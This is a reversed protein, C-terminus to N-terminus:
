SHKYWWTLPCWWKLPSFHQGPVKQPMMLGQKYIVYDKQRKYLPVVYYGKKLVFDLTQLNLHYLKLDNIKSIKELLQDILLSHIGAYNFSGQTTAALSSWYKHLEESPESSANWQNIIIDYDFAMRRKEYEAADVRRIHALIGLKELNNKYFLALKEHLLSTILINIEFQKKTKQHILKGGEVSFGSLKLLDFSKQLDTRYSLSFEELSKHDYGLTKLYTKVERGNHRPDFAYPTSEFYSEIRNLHEGFYTRNLSEFDFAFTLAKRVNLDNLYPHRTNLVFGFMGQPQLHPLELKIFNQKGNKNLFEYGKHFRIEDTEQFVDILKAKLAEYALSPDRFYEYRIADFHHCGQNIPLNDGWYPARKFELTKSPILQSVKYPGTGSLFTKQSLQGKLEDKCFIPIFGIILPLQYSAEPDLIFEVSFSNKKVIKQISKCWLKLDYRGHKQIYQFTEIVDDADMSKGNHFTVNHRLNFILNRRDLSLNIKESLRGYMSFPEDLSRKLLSEYVLFDGEGLVGKQSIPILHDFTGYAPLRLVGGKQADKSTYQFSKFNESYKLPFRLSLGHDSAESSFIFFFSLCLFTKRFV